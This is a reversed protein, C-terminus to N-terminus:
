LDAAASRTQPSVLVKISQGNGQTEFAQSIQALPFRGSILKRRDVKGAAMLDLAQVLEEPAYGMSGIIRVQKEILYTLDLTVAGEYAGFCIVRGGNPRLVNLATQLPPPGKVHQLYGACDFVVGVDPPQMPPYEAAVRGCAEGIAEVTDVDRPNIALTAGVDLAADLRTRSVDVAVIHRVPIELARLVQIVGLGIIGVGIIVVNEAPAIQALRVMQL